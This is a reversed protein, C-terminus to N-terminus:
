IAEFLNIKINLYLNEFINEVERLKFPLQRVFTNNQLLTGLLDPALEVDILIRLRKGTETTPQRGINQHFFTRHPWVETYYRTLNQLVLKLKLESLLIGLRQPHRWSLLCCQSMSPPTYFREIVTYVNRFVVKQAVFFKQRTLCYLSGYFAKETIPGDALPRRSM